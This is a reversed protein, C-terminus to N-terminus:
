QKIVEILRATSTLLLERIYDQNTSFAYIFGMLVVGTMLTSGGLKASLKGTMSAPIASLMYPILFIISTIVVATIGTRLFGETTEVGSIVKGFSAISVGGLVLMATNMLTSFIQPAAM